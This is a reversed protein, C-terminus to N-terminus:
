LQQVYSKVIGASAEFQRQEEENLHLHVLDSIGRSGLVAPVSLYVEEVGYAGNLYTSVPLVINEDNFIAKVIRLATAAIGFNTTNKVRAIKWGADKVDFLIRDRDFASRIEPKDKLIDTFSKGGAAVTSWPIFQSDGHEGISYAQISEANVGCLASLISKLRASDLANGTGIVHDAPLGSLRHVYYSIVDVPNTIVIFHGRFGSKMIEPVISAAIKKATSLMDLHIQGQILPAAATIVILDLDGCQSYDGAHM